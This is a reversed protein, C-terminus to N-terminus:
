FTIVNYGSKLFTSLPEGMGKVEVGFDRITEVLGFSEACAICAEVIVGDEQMAKVKARIDKDAVFLQQSPGWVVLRVEDFWGRTKAAHTYMLCMRHAVDPDRSTWVVVLREAHSQEEAAQAYVGCSLVVVLIGFGLIGWYGKRM